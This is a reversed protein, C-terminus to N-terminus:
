RGWPSPGVLSKWGHSKGPLLLPTPHWQWAGGDMSNELWSDQLSNGNREGPIRGVWPNFRTEQMAHLCTVLSAWVVKSIM